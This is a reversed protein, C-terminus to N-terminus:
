KLTHISTDIRPARRGILRTMSKNILIRGPRGAYPPSIYQDICDVGTRVSLDALVATMRDARFLDEFELDIRPRDQWFSWFAESDALVTQAVADDDRCLWRQMSRVMADVDRHVTLVVAAELLTLIRASDVAGPADIPLHTKLVYGAYPAIQGFLKEDLDRRKWAKDLDIYLPRNRYAPMNNLITDILVHTGCRKPTAVVINPRGHIGPRGPPCVVRRNTYPLVHTGLFGVLGSLRSAM